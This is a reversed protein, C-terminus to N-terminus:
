SAGDCSQPRTGSTVGASATILPKIPASGFVASDSRRGYSRTSRWGRAGGSAVQWETAAVDPPLDGKALCRIHRGVKQANVVAKSWQRGDDMPGEATFERNDRHVVILVFQRGAM